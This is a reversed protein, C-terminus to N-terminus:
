LLWVPAVGPVVVGPVAPDVPVVVVVGCVDVPAEPVVVVVGSVVVVGCAFL